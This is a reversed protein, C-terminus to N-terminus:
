LIANERRRLVQAIYCDLEENTLSRYLRDFDRKTMVTFHHEGESLRVLLLKQFHEHPYSEAVKVTFFLRYHTSGQNVNRRLLSSDPIRLVWLSLGGLINLRSSLTSV